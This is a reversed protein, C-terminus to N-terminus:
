FYSTRDPFILFVYDDIWARVFSGTVGLAFAGLSGIRRTGWLVVATEPVPICIPLLVCVLFYVCWM